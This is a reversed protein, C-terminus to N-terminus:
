LVWLVAIILTSALINLWIYLQAIKSNEDEKDLLWNCVLMMIIQFVLLVTSIIRLALM